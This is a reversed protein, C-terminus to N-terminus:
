GYAHRASVLMVPEFPLGSLAAIRAVSIFVEGYSGFGLLCSWMGEMTAKVRGHEKGRRVCEKRM